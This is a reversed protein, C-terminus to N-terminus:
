PRVGPLVHRDLFDVQDDLVDHFGDLFPDFPATRYRRLEGRPARRATRLIAAAPAITDHDGICALLPCTAQAAVRV